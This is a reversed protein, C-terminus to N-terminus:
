DKNEISRAEEGDVKDKNYSKCKLTCQQVYVKVNKTTTKQLNIRGNSAVESAYKEGENNETQNPCHTSINLVSETLHYLLNIKKLHVAYSVCEHM